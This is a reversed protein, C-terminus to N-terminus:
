PAIRPRGPGGRSRSTGFLIRLEDTRDIEVSVDSAECDLVHGGTTRDRTLAHLHFGAANVDALVEPMWFGALTAEVSFLNFEVQEALVEALPRYPKEQRPVSRTLLWSFLGRVRIAYVTGDSTLREAIRDHLAECTTPGTVAFAVDPRFFTVAAFPTTEGPSIREAVGDAGVRYFRGDVAVMEGDLANVTGLGFDGREEVDRFSVRGDYAGGLLDTLTAVQSVAERERGGRGHDAGREGTWATAALLLALTTSMM